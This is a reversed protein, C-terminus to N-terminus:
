QGYGEGAAVLRTLMNMFVAQDRPPLAAVTRAHARFVPERMRALLTRAKPTLSIIKKRRDRRDLARRVLRAAELRAVVNALTARDISAAESIQSQDIGSHQAVVTLVTYQVPTVDFAACEEAFLAVHIQHLRRVLFGPRQDLGQDFASIEM